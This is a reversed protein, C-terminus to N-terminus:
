KSLAFQFPVVELQCHSARANEVIKELTRAVDTEVWEKGCQSCIKAPVERM